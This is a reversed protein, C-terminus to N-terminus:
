WLPSADLSSVSRPSIVNYEDLRHSVELSASENAQNLTLEATTRDEDVETNIILEGTRDRINFNPKLTIRRGNLDLTKRVRLPGAEALLVVCPVRM